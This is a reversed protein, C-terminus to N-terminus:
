HRVLRVWKRAVPVAQTRATLFKFPKLSLLLVIWRVQRPGRLLLFALWGDKVDIALDQWGKLSVSSCVVWRLVRRTFLEVLLLSFIALRDGRFVPSGGLRQNFHESLWHDSHNKRSCPPKALLADVLYLVLDEVLVQVILTLGEHSADVEHTVGDLVLDDTDVSAGHLEEGVQELPDGVWTQGGRLLSFNFAVLRWDQGAEDFLETVVEGLTTLCRFVGHKGHTVVRSETNAWDDILDGFFPGTRLVRGTTASWLFCHVRVLQDNALVLSQSPDQRLDAVDRLVLKVLAQVKSCSSKNVGKLIHALWGLFADDLQVPVQAVLHPSFEAPQSM